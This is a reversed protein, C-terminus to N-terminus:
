SSILYKKLFGSIYKNEFYNYSYSIILTIVFCNLFMFIFLTSESFGYDFQEFYRIVLHHWLYFPFSLTGLFIFIPKKLIRNSVFGKELNFVFVLFGLPIWFYISYAFPLFQESFLNAAIFFILFLLISIVELLSYMKSKVNYVQSIKFLYIGFIFDFIRTVPSIYFLAHHWKQPIFIM